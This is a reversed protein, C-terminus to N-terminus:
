PNSMDNEYNKQFDIKFINQPLPENISIFQLSLSTNDGKVEKFHIQEPLWNKPSVVVEITEIYRTTAKMKPILKLRYGDSDTKSVLQIEYQKQLEEISQGIGFYEKFIDHTSGLYIEETKSLDPYFTLLTNAKLLVILLSPSIIRLLMKGTRNFYIEGESRLPEKLLCTKKLQVFRATLTRLSREREKIRKMAWSLDSEPRIDSESPFIQCPFLILIMSLCIPIIYKKLFYQKM